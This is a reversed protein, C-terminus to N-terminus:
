EFINISFASCKCLLVAVQELRDYVKHSLYLLSDSIRLCLVQSRPSFVPHSLVLIFLKLGLPSPYDYGNM